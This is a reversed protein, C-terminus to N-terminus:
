GQPDAVKSKAEQMMDLAEDFLSLPIGDLTQWWQGQQSKYASSLKLSKEQLRVSRSSDNYGPYVHISIRPWMRGEWGYVRECVGSPEYVADKGEEVYFDPDIARKDDLRKWSM